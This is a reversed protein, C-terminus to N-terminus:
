LGLGFGRLSPPLFFESRSRQGRLLCFCRPLNCHGAIWHVINRFVKSVSLSWLPLSFGVGLACPFFIAVGGAEPRHPVVRVPTSEAVTQAVLEGGCSRVVDATEVSHRATCKLPCCLVLTHSGLLYLVVDVHVEFLMTM